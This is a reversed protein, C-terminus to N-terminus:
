PREDGHALCRHPEEPLGLKALAEAHPLTIPRPNIYGKGGDIVRRISQNVQRRAAGAVAGPIRRSKDKPM